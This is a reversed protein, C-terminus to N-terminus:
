ARLVLNVQNFEFSEQDALLSYLMQNTTYAMLEQEPDVNNGNNKATTSYDLVRQPQVARWDVPQYNSFHRPDSRTMEVSPKADESHFARTLESEFNVTSRKFNPTDANAINNAIVQGRLVSVDMARHLLDVANSFDSM